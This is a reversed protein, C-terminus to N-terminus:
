PTSEEDAPFRNHAVMEASFGLDALPALVFSRTSARPHPLTLRPDSSTAGEYLIIDLDLTRPGNRVTRVRGSKEEIANLERLLAEPALSTRILVAANLFRLSQFEAPVGEPATDYRRSTRLLTTGPLTAIATQASDLFAEREGLNSGLAIVARAM